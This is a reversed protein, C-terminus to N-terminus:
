GGTVPFFRRSRFNNGVEHDALFFCGPAPYRFIFTIVSLQLFGVVPM